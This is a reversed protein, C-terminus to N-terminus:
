GHAQVNQVMLLDKKKVSSLRGTGTSKNSMKTNRQRELQDADQPMVEVNRTSNTSQSVKM